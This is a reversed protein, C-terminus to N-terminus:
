RLVAIAAAEEKRGGNSEPRPRRTTLYVPAHFTSVGGQPRPLFLSALAQLPKQLKLPRQLRVLLARQLPTQSPLHYLVPMPLPAIWIVPADQFSLTTTETGVEVTKQTCRKRTDKREV